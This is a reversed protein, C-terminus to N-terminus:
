KNITAIETKALQNGIQLQITADKVNTFAVIITTLKQKDLIYPIDMKAIKTNNTIKQGAKVLMNFCKGELEVTDIGMHVLVELGDNTVISIAHKTPFISVVKGNVPSYIEGDTPEVGFGDGLLKASFVTDPVKEIPIVEGNVPNTISNKKKHFLKMEEDEKDNKITKVYHSPM